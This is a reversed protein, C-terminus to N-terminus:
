NIFVKGDRVTIIGRQQLESLLLEVQQFQQQYIELQQKDAALQNQYQQERSQYEQERAQYQQVLGQLQAIQQEQGSNVTTDAQTSSNQVAMGNQNLYAAGGVILLGAGVTLTILTAALFAMFQKTM